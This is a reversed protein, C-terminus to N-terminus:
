TQRKISAVQGARGPVGSDITIHLYALGPVSVLLNGVAACRAAASCTAATARCPPSRLMIM